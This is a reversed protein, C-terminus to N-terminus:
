GREWDNSCQCEFTHTQTQRRTHTLVQFDFPEADNNKVEMTTDLCGEEVSVTFTCEFEHDWMERTYPSPKLSLTVSSDSLTLVDWDENRAFGHQQLKGPGFQPFCHALGGAIPKSGDM